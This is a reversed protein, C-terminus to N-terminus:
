APESGFFQRWRWTGGVNEFICSALYPRRVEEAGGGRVILHGEAFISAANGVVTVKRQPWDFIFTAPNAFL